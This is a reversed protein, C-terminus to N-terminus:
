ELFVFAYGYKLSGGVLKGSWGMKKCLADAGARHVEEGTLEHPYSIVVRNGDSDFAAIRAGRCNSPGLYKTLIAKM